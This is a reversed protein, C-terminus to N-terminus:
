VSPSLRTVLEGLQQRHHTGSVALLLSFLSVALYRSVLSLRLLGLRFSLLRLSGYYRLYTAFRPGLSGSYPLPFRADDVLSRFSRVSKSGVFPRVLVASSLWFLIPLSHHHELLRIRYDRVYPDTPPPRLM